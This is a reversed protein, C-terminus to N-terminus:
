NGNMFRVKNKHTIIRKSYVPKLFKISFFTVLVQNQFVGAVNFSISDTVIEGNTRVYYALLKATPAMKATLQIAFTFSM